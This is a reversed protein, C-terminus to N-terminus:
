AIKCHEMRRSCYQKCITEPFLRMKSNCSKQLAFIGFRAQKLFFPNLHQVMGSFCPMIVLVASGKNHCLLLCFAGQIGGFSDNFSHLFQKFEPITKPLVIFYLLPNPM